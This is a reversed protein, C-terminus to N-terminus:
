MRQNIAIPRESAKKMPKIETTIVRRSFHSRHFRLRIFGIEGRVGESLHLDLAKFGRAIQHEVPQWTAKGGQGNIGVCDLSGSRAVDGM